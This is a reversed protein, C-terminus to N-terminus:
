RAKLNDLSIRSCKTKLTQNKWDPSQESTLSLVGKNDMLEVKLLSSRRTRM